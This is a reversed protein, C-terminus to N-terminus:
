ITLLIRLCLSIQLCEPIAEDRQKECLGNVILKGADDHRTRHLRVFCDEDGWFDNM